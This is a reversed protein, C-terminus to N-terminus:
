GQHELQELLELILILDRAIHFPDKVPLAVIKEQPTGDRQCIQKWERIEPNRNPFVHFTYNFVKEHWNLFEKDGTHAYCLLTTYLAEAHVWWLKDGWGGLVQQETPELVDSLQGKPEGGTVSSYHLIGGYENDWGIELAKKVIAAIKPILEPKNLLKVADLMFWMDEITHGPNAHQGLLGTLPGNDARIIEHIVGNEDAFHELIDDTFNKLHNMLERCYDKDFLVAAQYMEHTVNSLIMPIGHARYEKSLPYPLTNFNGSEVRTLVSEYLRKGFDYCERDGAAAAYGAMALVVFCDAYISMDLPEWGEVKKPSGDREMLYVCRMDESEMLCHHMLFDRGTKALRLFESRQNKSFLLAPTSALRAFLWVFRGQSWTYKDYSMLNEGANDFCNLYGGYERDECRSIWFYLIHNVLENEYFGKLHLLSNNDM